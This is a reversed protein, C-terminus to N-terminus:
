RRSSPPRRRPPRRRVQARGRRARHEAEDALLQLLVRGEAFAHASPRHRARRPRRCALSQRTPRRATERARRSSRARRRRPREDVRRRPCARGRARSRCARSQAAPSGIPTSSTRRARSAPRRRAARPASRRRPSARGRRRARPRDLRHEVSARPRRRSPAAASPPAREAAVEALQRPHLRQELGAHRGFSAAAVSPIFGNGPASARAAPPPTRPRPAARRSSGDRAAEVVRQLAPAPERGVELELEGDGVDRRDRARADHPRRGVRRPAVVRRARRRSRARPPTRTSRAAPPRRDITRVLERHEAAVATRTATRSRSRSGSRLRRSRRATASTRSGSARPSASASRRSSSTRWVHSLGHRFRGDPRTITASPRGVIARFERHHGLEVGLRREVVLAGVPSAERARGRDEAGRGAERAHETEDALHDGRVGEAGRSPDVRERDRELDRVEHAREDRVGGEGAREHRDEALEELLALPERAQRTADVIKQSTRRKVVPSVAIKTSAAGSMTSSKPSGPPSKSRATPRERTSKGITIRSPSEPITTPIRLAYSWKVTGASVGTAQFRTIM